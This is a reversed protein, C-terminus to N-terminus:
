KKAILRLKALIDHEIDRSSNEIVQYFTEGRERFRELFVVQQGLYQDKSRILPAEGYESYLLTSSQVKGKFLEKIEARMTFSCYGGEKQPFTSCNTYVDSRGISIVEKSDIYAVIHAERFVERLVEMSYFNSNDTNVIPLTPLPTLGVELNANRQDKQQSSAQQCGSNLAVIAIVSGWVLLRM